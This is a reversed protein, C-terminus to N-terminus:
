YSHGPNDKKKALMKRKKKPTNAIFEKAVAESPGGMKRSKNPNHAMMQMYNYQKGSKVPM